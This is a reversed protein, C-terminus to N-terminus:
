VKLVFYQVSPSNLQLTYASRDIDATGAHQKFRVLRHGAAPRYFQLYLPWKEELAETPHIQDDVSLDNAALGVIIDEGDSHFRMFETGGTVAHWSLFDPGHLLRDPLRSRVRRM